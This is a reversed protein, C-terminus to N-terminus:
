ESGICILTLCEIKRTVDSKLTPEETKSDCTSKGEMVM